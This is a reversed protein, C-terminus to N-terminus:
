KLPLLCDLLVESIGLYWHLPRCSIEVVFDLGNVYELTLCIMVELLLVILYLIFCRNLTKEVSSFKNSTIKSNQSMKTDQGTYVAVGLIFETNRLQTGRLGLFYDLKIIWIKIAIFPFPKKSYHPTIYFLMCYPCFIFAPTPITTLM